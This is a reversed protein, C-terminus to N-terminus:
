CTNRFARGGLLNNLVLDYLDPSPEIIESKEGCGFSLGIVISGIMIFLRMRKKNM